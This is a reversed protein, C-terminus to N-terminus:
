VGPGSGRTHPNCIRCCSPRPCPQWGLLVRPVVELAVRENLPIRGVYGRAQVLLSSGRLQIDFYNRGVITPDLALGSGGEGVLDALPVEVADHESVKYVTAEEYQGIAPVAEVRTGPTSSRQLRSRITRERNGRLAVSSAAGVMVYKRTGVPISGIRKKSSSAFSTIGSAACPQTMALRRLSRIDPPATQPTERARKSVNNFFAIVRDRRSAPLGAADLLKRLVAPDPDMAVKAFRREFAADVDDVGRDLPNMTAIFLLNPPISCRGGAALSFEFGRKSKEVYTLGEGFIRAADGRSLEDIVLVFNSQPQEGADWAMQLLHKPELKLGGKRPVYGQVFDEYQYSPHFQVYRVRQPSGALTIALREASWTKSTGSPGVLIVGGYRDLLERVRVFLPNRKPLPRPYQPQRASASRPARSSKPAPSPATGPPLPLELQGVSLTRVRRDLRASM